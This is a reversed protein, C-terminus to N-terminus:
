SHFAMCPHKHSSTGKPRDEVWKERRPTIHWDWIAGMGMRNGTNMKSRVGTCNSVAQALSLHM